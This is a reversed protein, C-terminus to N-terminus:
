PVTQGHGNRHRFPRIAPNHRGVPAHPHPHSSGVRRHGTRRAGCAGCPPQLMQRLPPGVNLAQVVVLGAIGVVDGVFVAGFPRRIGVVPGIADVQTFEVLVARQIGVVFARLGDFHVHPVGGLIPHAAADHILGSVSEDRLNGHPQLPVRCLPVRRVNHLRIQEHHRRLRIQVRGEYRLIPLRPGVIGHRLQDQLDQRFGRRRLIQVVLPQQVLRQPNMFVQDVIEAALAPVARRPFQQHEPDVGVAGVPIYRGIRSQGLRLRLSVPAVHEVRVDTEARVRLLPALIDAIQRVLDLRRGTELPVVRRLSAPAVARGVPFM